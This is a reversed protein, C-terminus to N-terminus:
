MQEEIRVLHSISDVKARMAPTSTSAITENMRHLCLAKLTEKQRKTYAITSRVLTIRMTKDEAAGNQTDNAM